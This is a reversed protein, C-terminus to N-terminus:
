ILYPLTRFHIHHFKQAGAAGVAAKVLAENCRLDQGLGNIGGPQCAAPGVALSHPIDKHLAGTGHGGHLRQDMPGGVQRGLLTHWLGLLLRSGEDGNQLVGTQRAAAIHIYPQCQAAQGGGCPGVTHAAADHPGDVARRQGLQQGQGFPQPEAIHHRQSVGGM